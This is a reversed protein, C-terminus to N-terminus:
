PKSLLIQYDLIEKELFGAECYCFYFEWMNIFSNTCGLARVQDLQQLYNKRWHYLTKAYHKGINEIDEVSLDTSRVMSQMLATLSPLCGGPFIYKQIFDVSRLSSQYNQEKITITQILALGKPKLLESIISLYIDFYQHGVAELMEISVIKNYSGSLNRYDTKLLTISDSLNEKAILKQVYHYQNESITTTTVKCGYRKVAYMAFGGWGTGIELVSDNKTLALKECILELKTYTAELLTSQPNKFIASSYMMSEDLFLKFFDNGLDYHKAINSKSTRKTNRRLFHGLLLIPQAFYKSFLELKNLTTQNVITWQILMVMDKSQWHQKMYSEAVGISGRVLADIYFSCDFVTIEAIYNQGPAVLKGVFTTTIEGEHVHLTGYQVSALRRYVLARCLSEFLTPKM